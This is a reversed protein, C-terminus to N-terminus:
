PVSFQHSEADDTLLNDRLWFSFEAGRVELIWATEKVEIRNEWFSLELM